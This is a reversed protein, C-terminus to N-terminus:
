LDKIKPPDAKWVKGILYLKDNHKLQIPGIALKSKAFPGPVVPQVLDCDPAGM